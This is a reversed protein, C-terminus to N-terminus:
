EIYKKSTFNISSYKEQLGPSFGAELQVFYISMWTNLLFEAGGM